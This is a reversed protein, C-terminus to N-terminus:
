GGRWERLLWPQSCEHFLRRLVGKTTLAALVFVPLLLLFTRWYSTVAHHMRERAGVVNRLSKLWVSRTSATQRRTCDIIVQRRKAPWPEFSALLYCTM